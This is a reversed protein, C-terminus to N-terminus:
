KQRSPIIGGFIIRAALFNDTEQLSLGVSPVFYKYAAM